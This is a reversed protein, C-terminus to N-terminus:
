FDQVKLYNLFPRFASPLSIESLLTELTAWRWCDPLVPLKANPAIVAHWSDMKWEIHTFIHRCQIGSTIQLANSRSPLWQNVQKEAACRDYEGLSNPFEWLGHLVGKEERKRIAVQHNCTILFVTREEVKRPKKAPKVPLTQATGNQFGRCQDALPCISCQPAGNPLCVIAGLEMLSQTFESCHNRPYVQALADKISKKLLPNTIDQHCDTLRTIVRLVNGDVAPAPQNFAISAIAGATYEGIGPLKQLQEATNPFIGQYQQVIIGAAKQLNRARTYYGLGEWLKLLRDESVQALAFVDPLEALFREYYPKAAEVRTQQLMIESIWISYPNQTQRWPLIRANQEYWTLLPTVIGSLCPISIPTQNM